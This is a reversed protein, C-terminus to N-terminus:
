ASTRRAMRAALQDIRHRIDQAGDLRRPQHRMVQRRQLLDVLIAPEALEPRVVVKDEGGPCAAWQVNVAHHQLESLGGLCGFERTDPYM